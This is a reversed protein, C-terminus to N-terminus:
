SLMGTKKWRAIRSFHYQFYLISFFFTMVGSLKLGMPETSNYYNVMSRRMGFVAMLGAVLIVANLLMMIVGMMAMLTMSRSAMAVIYLLVQVVMGGLAVMLMKVANSAPDILKVFNAQKFAWFLGVLGMTFWSLILVLAWHMEPPMPGAGPAM